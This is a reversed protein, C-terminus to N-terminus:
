EACAVNRFQVEQSKGPLETTLVGNKWHLPNSNSGQNPFLSGMHWTLFLGIVLYFADRIMDERQKFTM